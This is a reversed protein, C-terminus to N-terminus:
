FNTEKLKWWVNKSLQKLIPKYEILKNKFNTKELFCNCYKYKIRCTECKKIVHENKCKIKHIWEVLNNVNNSFSSAM